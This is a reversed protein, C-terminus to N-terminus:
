KPREPLPMWHPARMAAIFESDADWVIMAFSALGRRLRATRRKGLTVPGAIGCLRAM